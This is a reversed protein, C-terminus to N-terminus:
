WDRSDEGGGYTGYEEVSVPRVEVAKEMDSQELTIAFTEIDGTKVAQTYTEFARQYHEPDFYYDTTKGDKIVSVKM